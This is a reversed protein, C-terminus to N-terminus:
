NLSMSLEIKHSYLIMSYTYMSICIHICIKYVIYIYVPDGVFKPSKRFILFRESVRRTLVHIAFVLNDILCTVADAVSAKTLARLAGSESLNFSNRLIVRHM